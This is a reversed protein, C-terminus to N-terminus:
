STPWAAIPLNAARAVGKTIRVGGVFGNMYQGNFEGLRGIALKNSSANVSASSTVTTADSVGDVYINFNNGNRIYQFYYWINAALNTSGTIVGVLSSGSGVFGQIRNGDTRRLAFSINSNTVAADAQAVITQFTGTTSFRAWAEISFSGTGMNFVANSATEVYDGTGDFAGSSGGFKSQATSIQANGFATMTRPSPSNDTFAPSGNTGNMLMLLSVNAYNPDTPGGGGGGGFLFPNIIFGRQRSRMASTLAKRRERLAGEIDTSRIIM